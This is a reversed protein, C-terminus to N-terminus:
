DIARDTPLIELMRIDARIEGRYTNPVTLRIAGAPQVIVQRAAQPLTVIVGRSNERVNVKVLHGNVNVQIPLQLPATITNEDVLEASRQIWVAEEGTTALGTLLTVYEIQIQTIAPQTEDVDYQFLPRGSLFPTYETQADRHVVSGNIVGLEEPNVNADSVASVTLAAALIGPYGWRMLVLCFTHTHKV